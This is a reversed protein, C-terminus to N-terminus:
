CIASYAGATEWAPINFKNLQNFIANLYIEPVKESSKNELHHLAANYKEIFVGTRSDFKLYGLDFFREEVEASNDKSGFTLTTIELTKKHLLIWQSQGLWKTEIICLSGNDLFFSSTLAAIM